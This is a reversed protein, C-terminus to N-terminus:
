STNCSPHISNSPKWSCRSASEDEGTQKKQYMTLECDSYFPVGSRRMLQQLKQASAATPKGREIDSQQQLVKHFQKALELLRCVSFQPLCNSYSNQENEISCIISCFTTNDRM